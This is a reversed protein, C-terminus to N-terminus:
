MNAAIWSSITAFSEQVLLANDGQFTILTATEMPREHPQKNFDEKTLVVGLNRQEMFSIHNPNIYVPEGHNNATSRNLAFLTLKLM